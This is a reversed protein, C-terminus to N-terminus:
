HIILATLIGTVLVCVWFRAPRQTAQHLPFAALVHVALPIAAWAWYAAALAPADHGFHAAGGAYDRLVCRPSPADESWPTRDREDQDEHAEDSEHPAAPRKGRRSRVAVYNPEGTVPPLSERTRSPQVNVEEQDDDKANCSPIAVESETTM